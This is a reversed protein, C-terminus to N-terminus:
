FVDQFRVKIKWDQQRFLVPQPLLHSRVSSGRGDETSSALTRGLQGPDGCGCAYLIGDVSLLLLHHSGSAIKLVPVALELHVPCISSKRTDLGVGDKRPTLLGLVGTQDRFTGWIFVRGDDTLAATHSDGASSVQVIKEQLEVLGPIADSGDESTDRGLADEDNCGLTYIKGTESLCVAHVGGGEAQIMREPLQVLAPRERLLVDPGLGLQGFEGQGLTLVLGPEVRHSLHSVKM